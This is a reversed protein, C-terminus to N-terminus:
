AELGPGPDQSTGTVGSTEAQAHKLATRRGIGDDADVPKYTIPPRWAGILDVM